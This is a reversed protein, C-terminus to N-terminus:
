TASIKAAIEEFKSVSIGGFEHAAFHLLFNMNSQTRIGRQFAHFRNLAELAVKRPHALRQTLNEHALILGAGFNQELLSRFFVGNRNNRASRPIERRNFQLFIFFSLNRAGSPIVSDFM